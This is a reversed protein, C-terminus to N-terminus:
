FVSTILHVGDDSLAMRGKIQVLLLVDVKSVFHVKALSHAPIEPLLLSEMALGPLDEQFLQRLLFLVPGAPYSVNGMIEGPM